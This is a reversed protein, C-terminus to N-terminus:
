SYCKRVWGITGRHLVVCRMRRGCAPRCLLTLTCVACCHPMGSTLQWHSASLTLLRTSTVDHLRSQCFPRSASLPPAQAAKSPGLSYRRWGPLSPDPKATM